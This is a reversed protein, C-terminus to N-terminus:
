EVIDMRQFRRFAIALFVAGWVLLAVMPVTVLDLDRIVDGPYRPVGSAARSAVETLTAMGRVPFADLLRELSGGSQFAEFRLLLTLIAAEIVVYVLMVVLTLSGSRVLLTAMSAFAIVMFAAEIEGVVLVALAGADIPPGPPLQV